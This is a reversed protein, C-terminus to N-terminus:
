EITVQKVASVDNNHLELMYNGAALNQPLQLTLPTTPQVTGAYLQAIRKGTIDYLSITCNDLAKHTNTELTVHNKAPVPYVKISNSVDTSITKIGSASGSVGDTANLIRKRGTADHKYVVMVFHMKSLNWNSPIRCTFDTLFEEGAYATSDWKIFRGWTGFQVDRRMFCRHAFTDHGPTSVAQAQWGMASDEVAYVAVTYSGADTINFRTKTKILVSDPTVMIKDFGVSVIAPTAVFDHVYRALTDIARPYIFTIGASTTYYQHYLHEIIGVGVNDVAFSPQNGYSPSNNIDFNMSETWFLDTKGNAPGTDYQLFYAPFAATNQIAALTDFLGMSWKTYSDACLAWERSFVITKHQNQLWQGHALPALGFATFILLLGKM